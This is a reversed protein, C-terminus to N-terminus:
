YLNPDYTPTPTVAYISNGWGLTPYNNQVWTPSGNYLRAWCKGPFPTALNVSDSVTYPTTGYDYLNLVVHNPDFLIKDLGQYLVRYGNSQISGKLNICNLTSCLRYGRLDITSSNSNWLEVARDGENVGGGPLQDFRPSTCIENILVNGSASIVTPTPTPTGPAGTPTVTPTPTPTATPGGPTATPTPTPTRTATPTPTPTLEEPIYSIAIYPRLSVDPHNTSAIGVAIDCTISNCQPELKFDFSSLTVVDSVDICSWENITPLYIHNYSSADVDTAGYAGDIEWDTINRAKEWTAELEVWYKNMSRVNLMMPESGLSTSELVFACLQASVFTGDIGYNSQMFVSSKTSEHGAPGPTGHTNAVMRLKDAGGRNVAPDRLNIWTDYFPNTQGSINITVQNPNPTNTPLAIPTPTEVPVGSARIAVDFITEVGDGKDNIKFDWFSTGSVYGNTLDVNELDVVWQFINGTDTKTRVWEYDVDDQYLRVAIDDTGEDLMTITIVTSLDVGYMYEDSVNFYMNPNSLTTQRANRWKPDCDNDYFKRQSTCSGPKYVDALNHVAIANGDITTLHDPQNAATVGSPHNAQSAYMFYTFNGCQSMYTFQCERMWVKAEPANTATKGAKTNLERVMNIVHFNGTTLHKIGVSDQVRSFYADCYKDLCSAMNWYDAEAENQEKTGPLVLELVPSFEDVEMHYNVQNNWAVVSDIKGMGEASTGTILMDNDDNHFAANELGIDLSAAYWATDRRTNRLSYFPTIKAIIATDTGTFYSEFIDIIDKSDEVYEYWQYDHGPAAASLCGWLNSRAANSEGYIGLPIQIFDIDDALTGTTAIYAALEDAFSAIATKYSDSWYMPIRRYSYEGSVVPCVVYYVNRDNADRLDSPFTLGDRMPYTDSWCNQGPAVNNCPTGDGSYSDSEYTSIDLGISEVGKSKAVAVDTVIIPFSSSATTPELDSWHYFIKTGIVWDPHETPANLIYQYFGPVYAPSAGGVEEIPPSGAPEDIIQEEPIQSSCSILLLMFVLLIIVKKM